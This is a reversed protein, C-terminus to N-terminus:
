YINKFNNIVEIEFANNVLCMLSNKAWGWNWGCNQGFMCLYWILRLWFYKKYFLKKWVVVVVAAVIGFVSSVRLKSCRDPGVPRDPVWSIWSQFWTPNLFFYPFDYGPTVQSVRHFVRQTNKKNKVLVVDIILDPKLVRGMRRNNIRKDRKKEGRM